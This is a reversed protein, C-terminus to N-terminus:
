FLYTIKKLQFVIIRLYQKIQILESLHFLQM